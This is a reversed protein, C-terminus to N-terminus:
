DLYLPKLNYISIKELGKMWALRSTQLPRREQLRAGLRNLITLREQAERRIVTVM